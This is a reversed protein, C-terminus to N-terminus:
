RTTDQYCFGIKQRKAISQLKNNKVAQIESIIALAITEPSSAGIDLGIPGFVRGECHNFDTGCEVLLKDRRKSPGLLGLYNITSALLETLYSQDREFQHSMIIASDYPTLDFDKWASRKIHQVHDALPFKSRESNNKRHDIVTTKWGIQHAIATVPPVDPSGGCILLHHPADMPISLSNDSGLAPRELDSAAIFEFQYNNTLDILLRYGNGCDVRKLINFFEHHKLNAPLYKLLISVEGDCGLGMGWLMDAEDRMNYEIIQDKQQSFVENAHIVIDGELCGGSLLGWYDLEQNILMMAGTKRYTSGKTNIVIAVVYNHQDSFQDISKLISHMPTKM